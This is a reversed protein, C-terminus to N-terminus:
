VIFETLEITDQKLLKTSIPAVTYKNKDLKSVNDILIYKGTSKTKYITGEKWQVIEFVEVYNHAEYSPIKM